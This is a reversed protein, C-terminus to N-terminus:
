STITYKLINSQLSVVGVSNATTNLAPMNINNNVVIDYVGPFAFNQLEFFFSNSNLFQIPINKISGFNVTTQGYPFFNEGYVYIQAYSNFLSSNQSLNNIYPKLNPIVKKSKRCTDQRLNRLREDVFLITNKPNNHRPVSTM